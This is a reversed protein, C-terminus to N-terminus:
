QVIDPHEDLYKDRLPFSLIYCAIPITLEISGNETTEVAPANYVYTKIPIFFNEGTSAALAFQAANEVDLAAKPNQASIKAFLIEKNKSIFDAGNMEEYIRQGTENLVRPSHKRTFVDNLGKVKLQMTTRIISLEEKHKSLKGAHEGLMDRIEVIDKEMRGLRADLQGFKFVRSLIFTMVGGFLTLAAIIVGIIEWTM